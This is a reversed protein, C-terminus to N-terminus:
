SYYYMYMYNYMYKRVLTSTRTTLLVTNKAHIIFFILGGYFNEGYDVRLFLLYLM